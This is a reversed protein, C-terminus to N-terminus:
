LQAKIARSWESLLEGRFVYVRARGEVQLRLEHDSHLAPDAESPVLELTAGALALSDTPKSGPKDAYTLMRTARNM